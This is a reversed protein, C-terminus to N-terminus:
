READAARPIELMEARMRQDTLRLIRAREHPTAADPAQSGTPSIHSTACLM